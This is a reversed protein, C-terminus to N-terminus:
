IEGRILLTKVIVGDVRAAALSRLNKSERAM